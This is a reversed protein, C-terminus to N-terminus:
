KTTQLHLVNTQNVAIFYTTYIHTYLLTRTSSCVSVLDITANHCKTEDLHPVPSSRNVNDNDHIGGSPSSSTDLRESPDDADNSISGSITGTGATGDVKNNSTSSSPIVVAIPKKKVSLNLPENYEMDVPVPCVKQKSLIITRRRRKIKRCKKREIHINHLPLPQRKYM